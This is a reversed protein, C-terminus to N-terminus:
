FGFSPLINEEMAVRFNLYRPAWGLARLKQNSVRKNSEGRKRAHPMQAEFVLPRELRSALWEYVERSSSPQDDVVNYIAREGAKESRQLEFRREVLLLLASAIDDRHVQNILRNDDAEVAVAGNLFSRVFFSRGPGHIGAVRAAIGGRALVIEEAERLVRATERTPDAPSTEDVLEGEKQAYVSTSSMLLLTTDPFANTLNRVGQLYVRRYQGIGGGGSSASHVVVDFRDGLDSVAKEDGIDVARIPYSKSSLQAASEPSATWGEVGWGQKHFLDATAQGVYGCGAILIRPM